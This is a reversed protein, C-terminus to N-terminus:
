SPRYGGGISMTKNRWVSLNHEKLLQDRELLELLGLVNQRSLQVVLQILLGVHILHYFASVGNRRTKHM